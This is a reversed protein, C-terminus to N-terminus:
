PEVISHELDIERTDILWIYALLMAIFTLVSALIFILVVGDVGMILKHAYNIYLFASIISGLAMGLNFLAQQYGFIKGRHQTKTLDAQIARISPMGTNFSINAFAMGILLAILNRSFGILIMAMSRVAMSFIFMNKKGWKKDTYSAIPYAAILGFLSATLQIGGIYVPEKIIYESIYVILISAIIGVSFGNIMGSFFIVNISRKIVRALANDEIKVSDIGINGDTEYNKGVGDKNEKLLMSLIFAVIFLPVPALITPRLIDIAKNSNILIYFMNYVAGGMGPGVLNGVNLSMVYLTMARTRITPDVKDMMMAEAVPWVMASTIGQLARVIVVDVANRSLGLFIGVLIYLFLGIVVLKKRGIKDSLKGFFAASPSRLIMFATINFAIYWIVESTFRINARSEPPPISPNELAEIYYQIVPQLMSFGLQVALAIFIIIIGERGLGKFIGQKRLM